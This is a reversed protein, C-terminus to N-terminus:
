PPLRQEYMSLYNNIIYLVNENTYTQQILIQYSIVKIRAALFKKVTHM